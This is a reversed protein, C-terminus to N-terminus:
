SAVSLAEAVARNFPLALYAARTAADDIVAARAHMVSHAQRLLKRATDPRDSALAVQAAAWLWEAPQPALKPNADYLALLEDAARRAGDVDGARVSALALACLNDGLRPTAGAPRRLAVARALHAV